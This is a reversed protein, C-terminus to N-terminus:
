LEENKKKEEKAEDRLWMMACSVCFFDGEVRCEKSCQRKEKWRYWAKLRDYWDTYKEENTM